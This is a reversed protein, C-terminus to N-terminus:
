RDRRDPASTSSPLEARIRGLAPELRAILAAYDQGEFTSRAEQLLSATETVLARLRTAASANRSGLSDAHTRLTAIDAALEAMLGEVRGRLTAKRDAAERAAQYASERAEVALRLAERYDRATVAQDYRTLASEATALTDAAYVTAGAARAATVAGEAQHRESDPPASCASVALAVLVTALSRRPM